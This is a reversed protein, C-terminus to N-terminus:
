DLLSDAILVYDAKLEKLSLADSFGCGVPDRQAVGRLFDLIAAGQKFNRMTKGLCDWRWANISNRLDEKRLM